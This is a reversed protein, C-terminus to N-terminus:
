KGGKKQNCYIHLLRANEPITEGGKWYPLHHDVVADDISSIQQNCYSCTANNDFLEKKLQFSFSRPQKKHGIISNLEANWLNFRHLVNTKSLTGDQPLFNPDNLILNILAERISDAHPVIQAKDYQAFSVMILDFLVKNTKNWHLSYNSHSKKISVSKFSNDGFVTRTLQLSDQFKKKYAKFRSEREIEDLNDFILKTEKMHNNLFHKLRGQYNAFGDLYFALFRLVLEIDEMRKQKKGAFMLQKLLSYNALNKIFENYYGRYICNRLEQDNLNAAGSNIREFIEFKVEEDSEASVKIVSLPYRTIKLQFEKELDKYLIGNLERFIKLGSLPYESNIYRFVSTLRQQGDVVLETRSEKDEATFILPIPVNLLISEILQSAKKDNWVYYRQFFPQKELLGDTEDNMLDRIRRESRNFEIKRGIIYFNSNTDDDNDTAESDEDETAIEYNIECNEIDAIVEENTFNLNTSTLKSADTIFDDVPNMDFLNIQENKKM